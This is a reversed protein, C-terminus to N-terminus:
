PEREAKNLWKIGVNSSIWGKQKWPYIQFVVSIKLNDILILNVFEAITLAMDINVDVLVDITYYTWLNVQEDM